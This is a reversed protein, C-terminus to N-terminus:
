GPDKQMGEENVQLSGRNVDTISSPEPMEQHADISDAVLANVSGFVVAQEAEIDMSYKMSANVSALRFAAVQEAEEFMIEDSKPVKTKMDRMVQTAKVCAKDDSIEEWPGELGRPPLQYKGDSLLVPEQLAYRARKLFRGSPNLAKTLTVIEQSILRRDVPTADDFLSKRELALTRFQRNGVHENIFAGRGLIVDNPTPLLDKYIVSIDDDQATDANTDQTPAEDIGGTPSPLYGDNQKQQNPETPYTKVKKRKLMGMARLAIRDPRKHDRIVGLAKQIAREIGMDRWPGLERKLKKNKKLSHGMQDFYAASSGVLVKDVDVERFFADVEEASCNANDDVREIFRGGLELVSEVIELSIQRKQCNTASEFDSKRDACMSRFLKNGPHANITAGRGSLVDNHHYGYILEPFPPPFQMKRKSRTAELRVIPSIPPIKKTELEETDGAVLPPADAAATSVDPDPDNNETDGAEDTAVMASEEPDLDNNAAAARADHLTMGDSADYFDGEDSATPENRGEEDEKGESQSSM